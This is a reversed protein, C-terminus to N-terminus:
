LLKRLAPLGLLWGAIFFCLACSVTGSVAFKLLANAPVDRWALAVAVLVPPHIIFITYARRALSKWIGNLVTFRRQYEYLLKLIVGWAVLPEWFAYVDGLVPGRLGPVVRGLFYIIPLIPLALCAVRWWTRVKRPPLLELWAHGAAVFGFAFLVVYSAFYGLQLGWVNVGVPWFARLALAGAGTALAAGLLAANSPWPRPGNEQRPQIGDGPRASVWVVAVCAFLLLAQAFWLPGNEFTGARLLRTLTEVFPHGHSTQAIAITVPGLLWGFFLLPLGLRKLRDMLYRRAGHREIAAPTLYGALLFFFGMFFAQNVTCFYVLLTSSLSRDTPVERYFWGGIAGYTIAAHHMVVLLTLSARLADFGANRAESRMVQRDTPRAEIGNPVLSDTALLQRHVAADPTTTDTLGAM